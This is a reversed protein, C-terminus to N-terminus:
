TSKQSGGLGELVLDDVTVDGDALVLRILAHLARQMIDHRRRGKSDALFGVGCADRDGVLSPPGPYPVGLEGSREPHRCSLPDVAGMGVAARAPAARRLVPRGRTTPLQTHLARAAALLLLLAQFHVRPM